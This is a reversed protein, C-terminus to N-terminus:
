YITSLLLNSVGFKIKIGSKEKRLREGGKSSMRYENQAGKSTAFCFHFVM